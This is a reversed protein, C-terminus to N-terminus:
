MRNCLLMWVATHHNCLMTTLDHVQVVLFWELAIALTELHVDKLHYNDILSIKIRSQNLTTLLAVLFALMATSYINNHGLIDLHQTAIGM